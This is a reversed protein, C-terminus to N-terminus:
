DHQRSSSNDSLSKFQIIVLRQRVSIAAKKDLCSEEREHVDGEADVFTDSETSVSVTEIPSSFRVESCFM